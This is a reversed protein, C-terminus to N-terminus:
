MSSTRDASDLLRTPKATVKSIPPPWWDLCLVNFELSGDDALGLEALRAPTLCTVCDGFFGEIHLVPRLRVRRGTPKHSLTKAACGKM